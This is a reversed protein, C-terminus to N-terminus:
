RLIECSEITIVAILEALEFKSSTSLQRLCSMPSKSLVGSFVSEVITEKETCLFSAFDVNNNTREM